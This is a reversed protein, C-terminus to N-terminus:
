FFFLSSIDFKGRHTVNAECSYQICSMTDLDTSKELPYEKAMGQYFM